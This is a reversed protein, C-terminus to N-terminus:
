LEQSYKGARLDSLLNTIAAEDLQNFFKDKIKIFPTNDCNGVCSTKEYLFLGDATTENEKVALLKELTDAVTREETFHCPTSDCIELVYRAERKEKLLSYFSIIEWIRTESIGLRDAVFEATEQDIFGDESAYQMDLLINLIQERNSDYREIIALKDEKTL